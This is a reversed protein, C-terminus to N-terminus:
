NICTIPVTSTAFNPNLLNSTASCFIYL